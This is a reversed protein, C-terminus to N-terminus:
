NLLTTKGASGGPSGGGTYVPTATHTPDLVSTGTGVTGMVSGIATLLDYYGQVDAEVTTTDAAEADTDIHAKTMDNAM